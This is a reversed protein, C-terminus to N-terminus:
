RTITIKHNIDSMIISAIEGNHIDIIFDREEIKKNLFYNSMKSILRIKSPSVTDDIEKCKLSFESKILIVFPSMFDYFWLIRKPYTLYLPFRDIIQLDQYYGKQIKFIAQFFYFLFCKKSGEFYTFFFLNKDNEFYAKANSKSCYIYSQNYEDVKVEWSVKQKEPGSSGNFEFVQGPIFNFASVLLSNAEINSVQQNIIPRSHTHLSFNGDVHGVYNSLPYDLTASGIFPYSQLQFHLHPFPSRGSNGCLAVIQGFKVEEGKKVKISGKKLHCLKSYVEDSHKIIITNGWNEKLNVQGIINDEIGDLVEEIIGNEPAIVPKNYCFYDDPFNGDNKFQKDMQNVIIFDWAYRYDGQHTHDGNHGQSVKWTGFFPLKVPIFIKYRFREKNNLFIYLNKEPSNHQYYVESLNYSYKERFKLSYLFLLVVLNFPLAYVPL